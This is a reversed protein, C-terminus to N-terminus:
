EDAVRGRYGRPGVYTSPDQWKYRALVAYMRFAGHSLHAFEAELLENPVMTFGGKPDSQRKRNVPTV